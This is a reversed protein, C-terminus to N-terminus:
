AGLGILVALSQLHTAIDSWFISIGKMGDWAFALVTGHSVLIATPLFMTSFLYGVLKLDTQGGHTERMTSTIHYIFAAGIIADAFNSPVFTLLRFLPILFFCVTPFFYPAVTILWNGLGIIRVHGGRSWTAKLETVRHLTLIAFLAHTFEHEFTSLLTTRWRRITWLWALLYLGAGGIFPLITEPHRGCTVLLEFSALLSPVLVVLAVVAVPWKLWGVFRDIRDSIAHSM